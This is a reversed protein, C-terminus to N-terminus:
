SVNMGGGGWPREVEFNSGIIIATYPKSATVPLDRIIIIIGSYNLPSIRNTLDRSHKISCSTM